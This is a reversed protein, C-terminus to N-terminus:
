AVESALAVGWRPLTVTFTSGEGPQSKAAIKGGHAEVIQKAIFLGLGLGGYHKLSVAREFREFIRACAEPAIGMGHDTVSIRAADGDDTIVVEIPRGGGYKVANELLNSLVQDIRLPDWRGVLSSCSRLEIKTGTENSESAFRETVDRALACLDVTEPEIALQGATIRTVDLLSEVLRTLRFIQRSCREVRGTLQDNLLGARKLTRELGELQLQLPTLPTRLEHSAIMFFEDRARIAEQAERYLRANDLAIGFRRGLEQAVALDAPTYRGRAARRVLEVVGLRRGRLEIPVCIYSIPGLSRLLEPSTGLVRAMCPLNEIVEHLVKGGCRFTYDAGERRGIARSLEKTLEENGIQNAAACVVLAGQENALDVLCLDGLLPIARETAKQLTGETELSSTLLLTTEDLFAQIEEARKQETLDRMVTAFGRLEGNEDHVPSLRLEARFQSGDKRVLVGEGLFHGNRKAGALAEEPSGQEVDGETYFTSVHTGLIASQEHGMIRTAGANWSAVRGDPDLMFIAYDKVSEVLLRFRKEAEESARRRAEEEALMVMRAHLLRDTEHKYLAIEIAGRLERENFPKVLYGFPSTTKARVITEEDAYATLYVIPIDLEARIREAAEVGDMSGELRIDMLVLDPRRALVTEIAREGSAATGSVEYGLSRLTNELDAAVIRQDEVIFIKRKADSM